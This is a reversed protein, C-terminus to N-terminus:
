IVTYAPLSRKISQAHGKGIVIIEPHYLEINKVITEERKRYCQMCLALVDDLTPNQKLILYAKEYRTLFYVNLYSLELPAYPNLRSKKQEIEKVLYEETWRGDRVAKAIEMAQMDDWEEPNELPIVQVDRKEMHQALDGFFFTTVGFQRRQKYDDPLELGITNWPIRNLERIVAELEEQNEHAVGMLLKM